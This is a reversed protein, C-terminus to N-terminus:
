SIARGTSVNWGILSDNWSQFWWGARHVLICVSSLLGPNIFHQWHCVCVILRGCLPNENTVTSVSPAPLMRHLWFSATAVSVIWLAKRLFWNWSSVCCVCSCHCCSLPSWMVRPNVLPPWPAVKDNPRSVHVSLSCRATLRAALRQCQVRSVDRQGTLADWSCKHVLTIKHRRQHLWVKLSCNIVQSFELRPHIIWCSAIKVNVSRLPYLTFGLPLTVVSRSSIFLIFTSTCLDPGWRNCCVNSRFLDTKLPLSNRCTWCSLHKQAANIISRKCSFLTFRADAM